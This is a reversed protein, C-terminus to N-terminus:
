SAAPSGGQLAARSMRQGSPGLRVLQLEQEHQRLREREQEQPRRGEGEELVDRGPRRLRHRLNPLRARQRRRDARRPAQDPQAQRSRATRRTGQRDELDGERGKRGPDGEHDRLHASRRRCGDGRLPHHRHVQAAAAVAEDELAERECLEAAHEVDASVTVLVTATDSGGNGDSISYDFSDSGSFGPNPTYTCMGTALCAVTGSTATPTLTTVTLTDGDGDSDNALVNVNGATDAPTMLADDNAIPNDAVPTVTVSVTGTDTGGNGDSVTYTFSDSGHFNAAPTYTCMGGTTCSVAGHAAAPSASTVTLPGGDIDTDGELVDLPASATDEATTLAEDDAVPPDNVANVTVSVHGTDTANGDSVTYDFGDPGNYNAAPTYTCVGAATCSVTGHAASPALTTVTLPDGDVDTDGTLVNVNGATDENTVLLEDDAVPPDNVPTVTITVHGTDTGGNGDSITYDFGDPGNYNAAPTYQCTGTPACAVTGHAATPNPSTVTLTDGNADTDGVLVNVSGAVDEPTTLTEDDAVPPTNTPVSPTVTVNVTATDTGGHGDSISYTFSDPGDYDTAPTYTCLGGATCSVTGHAATPTLTTVTLSDGDVDTDNTLVNVQGATNEATTLADNIADPQDNVPTVTISVTATDTGGHGDSIGYTFSDPGHFNAAPTYTCVGAATCSVTGHAAPPSLTTVTLSDGDADTDNALVNLSGQTDESTSLVDDVANPVDNVPTVTVNVTATDTGGNGDSISYTFSDPGNYNAAPTYTCLGAATCSVTGHAATPTLTTVTLTGGDIDTDNALVNLPASATDESTTLSDNVANPDDNVPTVTVNVTATDTGGHGDSVTYSFSDPGFYNAAPTYTCIGAATCSVTGHAASPTLTTVTLTDGDADTDGDLVNVQGATDEATTLSDDDAVPPHNGSAVTVAVTGVDTGGHGDSITYTFSDPGSYGPAPTYTCSSGTCTVTGHLGQTFSQITLPTDGDVDFDNALVNVSGPSGQTTSIVDDVATPNDQVPTVTISVTATDTGGHGDSIGYTFSDPGFYNAAPTYTCAGAATCSVTGHAATPTLTTLTLPNDDPDTDNGLVNLPASATDENTTLSDNVANPPENAGASCGGPGATGAVLRDVFAASDLVGDGADFISLFLVHAGPTIPTRASLLPTSGDYQAGTDVVVRGPEFFSGNVSVIGGESDFAFNNPATIVSNTISWNSVDLEALFGDNFSQNVFEPYEESQFALDFSLCNAGAPVMLDLRLISPDFSGRGETGNDQGAGTEDNPGPAETVDGSTLLLSTGNFPPLVTTTPGTAANALISSCMFWRESVVLGGHDLSSAVAPCPDLTVTTTSTALGDSITYTFSDSAGLNSTQSYTITQNDDDGPPNITATGFSPPTVSVITLTDGEDDEDNQLVDIISQDSRAGADANAQPPTNANVTISVQATDTGGNGDSISYDFSDPGTYDTAPTYTCEGLGDCTVTGHQATPALTTVVLEDEDPDSDNDLVFIDKPANARTVAVDDDAQPPTNTGVTISVHGTDTLEGDSVIYDFSDPGLYGDDSQYSCTTFCSVTGHPPDTPAMVELFDGDADTDNDLVRIALLTGSKVTVTDDVAVPPAVSAGADLAALAPSGQAALGLAVLLVLLVLRPRLRTLQM